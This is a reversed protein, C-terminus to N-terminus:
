QAARRRSPHGDLGMDALLEGEGRLIRAYARVKAPEGLLRAASSSDLVDLVSRPIGLIDGAASTLKALAEEHRGAKRLGLVATLLTGVEDIMRLLYDKKSTLGM